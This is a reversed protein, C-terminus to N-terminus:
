TFSRGVCSAFSVCLDRQRLLPFPGTIQIRQELALMRPRDSLKM